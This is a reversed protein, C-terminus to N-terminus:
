GFPARGWLAGNERVATLKIRIRDSKTKSEEFAQECYLAFASRGPGTSLDIAQMAFEIRGGADLVMNAMPIAHLINQRDFRDVKWMVVVNIRGAQVDEVVRLWDPQFQEGKYASKGHVVYQRAIAYGRDGCYREIDPVQNTEDQGGTSVRVWTAAQDTM